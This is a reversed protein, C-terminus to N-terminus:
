AGSRGVPNILRRMLLQVASNQTLNVRCRIEEFNILSYFYGAPIILFIDYPIRYRTEGHFIATTILITLFALYSIAQPSSAISKFRIGLLALAPLIVLACFALNFYQISRTGSPFIDESFFLDYLYEVSYGITKSIDERMEKIGEKLFFSSDYPGADFSVDRAYQKSCAVPSAFRFNYHRNIDHLYVWKVHARGVYFNLGAMTSITGFNGSLAFVRLCLALYLPLFGLMYYLGNSAIKYKKCNLIWWLGFLPVFLLITAKFSASLVLAIGGLFAFIRRHMSSQCCISKALFYFMVSLCFAFPTESLFYGTYDILLYDFGAIFLAICAARRNFIIKAAFFIFACTLTSMLANLLKIWLFPTSTKLFPTYLYQTGPPHLTDTIDESKGLSIQLSKQYYWKMDSELCKEPPRLFFVFFVRIALALILFVVIM